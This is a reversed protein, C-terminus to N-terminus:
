YVEQYDNTLELPQIASVPVAYCDIRGNTEKPYKKVEKGSIYYPEDGMSPAKTFVIKNHTGVRHAALLVRRDHWRPSWIDFYHFQTFKPLKAM